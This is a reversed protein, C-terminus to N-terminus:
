GEWMPFSVLGIKGTLLIVHHVKKDFYSSFGQLKDTQTMDKLKAASISEVQLSLHMKWSM